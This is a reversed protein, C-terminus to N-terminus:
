NDRTISDGIQLSDDSRYESYDTTLHLGDVYMTGGPRDVVIPNHTVRKM